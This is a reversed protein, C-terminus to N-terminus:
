NIGRNLTPPQSAIVYDFSIALPLGIHAETILNHSAIVYIVYVFLWVVRSVRSILAKTFQLWDCALPDRPTQPLIKM